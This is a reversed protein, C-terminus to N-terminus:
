FLLNLLCDAVAPEMGAKILEQYFLYGTNDIAIELQNYFTDTKDLLSSNCDAVINIIITKLM